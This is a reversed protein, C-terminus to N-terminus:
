PLASDLPGAHSIAFNKGIKIGKAQLRDMEAILAEPDVVVGRQRHHM